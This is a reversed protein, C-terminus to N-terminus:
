VAYLMLEWAPLCEKRRIYLRYDKCIGRIILPLNFLDESRHYLSVALIPRDRLITRRSGQLAAEEAGEVDYKILDVRTDGVVDDVTTVSVMETRAGHSGGFLTSNRNGGAALRVEGPRDLLAARVPRVRGRAQSSTAYAELKVFNRADPEVAFVCETEPFASLWAAATDGRYAGADVVARFTHSRLLAAEDAPCSFARRLHGIKGDLKYAVIESFITKSLNDELLDYTKELECRHAAYFETDFFVDGAVPMDPLRYEYKEAMDCIRALVAPDRTAFAQLIIGDPYRRIAERFCLVPYGCFNQGRVFEDSAFVAAPRRGIRALQALLKEAGNGMGYVLLPRADNQLMSWVDASIEPLHDRAVQM